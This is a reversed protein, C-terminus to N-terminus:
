LIGEEKLLNVMRKTAIARPTFIFREDLSMESITKFAGQPSFIDRYGNDDRKNSAPVIEGQTDSQIVYEAHRDVYALATSFTASKDEYPELKEFIRAKAREFNRDKGAIRAALIGPFGNLAHIFFGTDDAITPLATQQFYHRAKILANEQLTEATEEIDPCNFEQLTKLVIGSHEAARAIYFIFADMKEKNTTGILINM